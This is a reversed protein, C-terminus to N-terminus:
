EIVNYRNNKIEVIRIFKNEFYDPIPNGNQGQKYVPIIEFETELPKQFQKITEYQFGEESNQLASMLFHTVDYGELADDGPFERFAEFYKKRFNKVEPRSEDTFNSISLRVNLGSIFDFIDTKLETWKSFGYVYVQKNKKEAAVRRLFQYIYNEDKASVLPLIFVTPGESKFYKELLPEVAKSLEDESIIEERMWENGAYNENFIKLRSDTKSKSILIINEINFHKRAHLNINQFHTNLGPKLQLYYPNQETITSSSIWPSVLFTKNLKAWQATYKLSETKYPGIILDPLNNKYEALLAETQDSEGTDKIDLQIHRNNSQNLEDLALKMGAYFQVFRLNNSNLKNVISDQDSVKFPILALVHYRSKAKSSHGKQIQALSDKLIIEPKEVNTVIEEKWEITDVKDPLNKNPKIVPPNPKEHYVQGQKAKKSTGCSFLILISFIVLQKNGSLLQRLSRVLIM